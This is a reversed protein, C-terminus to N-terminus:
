YHLAVSAPKEEVLAGEVPLALEHVEALVRARLAATARPLGRAFGPEFESGHSGVLHIQVPSGMHQALDSLARGSIVAVRTHPLDALAHMAVLAERHPVALSPEPAIEALTGDYDSAVLLVPVRALEQLCTDLDPDM